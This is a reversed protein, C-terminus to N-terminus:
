LGTHHQQLGGGAPEPVTEWSCHDMDRLWLLEGLKAKLVPEPPSLPYLLTNERIQGERRENIERQCCPAPLGVTTRNFHEVTVFNVEARRCLSTKYILQRRQIHATYVTNHIGSLVPFNDLVTWIVNDLNLSLSSGVKRHHVTVEEENQNLDSLNETGNQSCISSYKRNLCTCSSRTCHNWM